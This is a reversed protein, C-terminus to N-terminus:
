VKMKRMICIVQILINWYNLSSFVMAAVCLVSKLVLPSHADQLFEQWDDTSPEVELPWSTFVDARDKPLSLLSPKGLLIKETMRWQYSTNWNFIFIGNRWLFPPLLILEPKQKSKCQNVYIERIKIKDKKNELFLWTKNNYCALEVAKCHWILPLSRPKMMWLIFIISNDTEYTAFTTSLFTYM